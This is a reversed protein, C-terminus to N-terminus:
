IYIKQVNFFLLNIIEVMVHVHTVLSVSMLVYMHCQLIQNLRASWLNM